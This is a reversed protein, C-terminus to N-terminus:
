KKEFLGHILQEGQRVHWTGNAMVSDIKHNENLVVLDADLGTEIRGKHHFKLLRAVNSTMLPLIKEIPLEM